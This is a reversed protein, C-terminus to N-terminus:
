EPVEEVVIKVVDADVIDNVNADWMANDIHDTKIDRSMIPEGDKAYHTVTFKMVEGKHGM